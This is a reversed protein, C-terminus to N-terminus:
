KFTVMTVGYGAQEGEPGSIKLVGEQKSFYDFVLKRLTGSGFGHIIKITKTQSLIAQDHYAM